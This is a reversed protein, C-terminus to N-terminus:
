PSLLFAHTLRCLVWNKVCQIIHRLLHVKMTNSSSGLFIILLIDTQQEVTSNYLRTGYLISMESYFKGFFLQVNSLDTSSLM